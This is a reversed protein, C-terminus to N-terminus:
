PKFRNFEGLYEKQRPYAYANLKSTKLNLNLMAQAIQISASIGEIVPIKYKKQIKDAFDTMGACGLVIVDTKKSNVLNNIKEDLKKEVNSSNKKLELVPIELAILDNCNQILGYKSLNSKLKAISRSLTTIVTFNGGLLNAVHYCCEGIGLVPKDTFSRSADIGTDDFCAIIFADCDQHKKIENIIGPVCFAEDYYGEISEPGFESCTTKIKFSETELNNATIRIQKTMALSTNPNIICITKKTLKKNM